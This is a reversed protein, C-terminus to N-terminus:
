IQTVLLWILLVLGVLALLLVLSFGSIAWRTWRQLSRADERGGRALWESRWPGHLQAALETAELGPLQAFSALFQALTEDANYKENWAKSEREEWGDERFVTVVVQFGSWPQESVEAEVWGRSTHVLRKRPM